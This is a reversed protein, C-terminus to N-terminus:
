RAGEMQRALRFDAERLADDPHQPLLVTVANGGSWEVRAPRGYDATFAAIWQVFALASARGPLEDAIGLECAIAKQSFGREGRVHALRRGFAQLLKREPGSPTVPLSAPFRESRHLKKV